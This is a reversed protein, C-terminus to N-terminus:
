VLKHKKLLDEYHGHVKKYNATGKTVDRPGLGFHDLSERWYKLKEPLKRKPKSVSKKITSVKKGITVTGTKTM